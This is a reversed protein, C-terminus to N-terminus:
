SNDGAVFAKLMSDHGIKEGIVGQFAAEFVMDVALQSKRVIAAFFVREEDVMHFGRVLQAARAGGPLQHLMDHLHRFPLMQIDHRYAAICGGPDALM